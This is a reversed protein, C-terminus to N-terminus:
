IHLFFSVKDALIEKFEDLIDDLSASVTILINPTLFTKDDIEGTRTLQYKCSLELNVKIAHNKKKLQNQLRRRIMPMADELFDDVFKHTLNVVAGTRIRSKFASRLDVWQVRRADKRVPRTSSSPGHLLSGGFHHSLRNKAKSSLSKLQVLKSECKRKEGHGLFESHHLWKNLLRISTTNLKIFNRLEDETQLLSMMENSLTSLRKLDDM